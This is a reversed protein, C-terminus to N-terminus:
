VLMGDYEDCPFIWKGVMLRIRATWDTSTWGFKAGNKTTTIVPRRRVQERPSCDRVAREREDGVECSCTKKAQSSTAKENISKANKDDLENLNRNEGSRRHATKTKGNVREGSLTRLRNLFKNNKYYFNNKVVCV